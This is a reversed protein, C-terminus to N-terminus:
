DSDSTGRVLSRSSPSSRVEVEAAQRAKEESNNAQLKGEEAAITKRYENASIQATRISHEM